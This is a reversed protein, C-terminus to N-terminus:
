ITDLWVVKKPSGDFVAVANKLSKLDYAKKALEYRYGMVRGDITKTEYFSNGSVTVGPHPADHVYSDDTSHWWWYVLCARSCDFINDAIVFNETEEYWGRQSSRINATMWHDPRQEYSWVYGAFRLINNSISINHLETYRGGRDPQTSFFEINYYCAEVLNKSIDIDDYYTDMDASNWSQFTIGADYCQYVYNGSVKIHRVGLQMEIGNGYRTERLQQSGGLMGIECNTIKVNETNGSLIIGHAGTYKVCLNDAVAGSKVRIVDNRQGIEISDFDLKPNGSYRLYLVGKSDDSYFDYDESVEDLSWKKVGLAYKDNFVIIGANGGVLSTKWINEGAKTWAASKAYNKASGSFLPKDGSGYAGFIVGEPVTLTTGNVRWVGGREFLVADGAKLNAPISDLTMESSIYYKNGTVTYIDETNGSTLISNKLAGAESWAGGTFVKSADYGSSNRLNIMNEEQSNGTSHYVKVDWGSLFQFLRILDKNNVNGDGNIDLAYEDVTVNWDSLFQFLRTLDKNNLLGDGNIDGAIYDVSRFYGRPVPSTCVGAGAGFNRRNWRNGARSTSYYDAAFTNILSGGTKEGDASLLYLAPNACAFHSNVGGYNGDYNGVLVGLNGEWDENLTFTIIYRNDESDYRSSYNTQYGTIRAGIEDNGVRIVPKGSYIVCDMEFRYNGAPIVSWSKTYKLCTWNGKEFIEVLDPVAGEASVCVRCCFSVATIVCVALIICILKGSIKVTSSKM